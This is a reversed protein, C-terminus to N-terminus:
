TLNPGLWKEAEQESWGKRQAYDQMQDQQIQAIAFYRSDPHSFYWGSVSAGPWMAYSTTLSMDIAQEVNLMEWLTGKETHEPCAPYGPAPRIGQYKERILEDNSLNEDTAYGWIDKRVQLHLYEAFAEALRDAVAQIMIANYDDGNAKYQDALEREGIGGTVAFAGIWDKKGSEKPAIYDSLCYNFGKPKETQQRLNHLVHAVETRSEDSYVEIDDGISAAPFLACMGRAELLGEREVRDLLENADKFLRLAEEGVEEHDFIAPYKGMLSWTMFFPTWDIYQRLTSVDFDNFVHVGPKLPVPPTYSDWNIAVKNARAKELTVPKTRPRKRAHQDRVVDYDAQLKEVFAPKQTESLLASCVGVARSANNVYVVPHQYNQEIKVATHAKSTTAGGILLPLEFGQREMEKAVHVMEDLSPTILGSLGIIDVNEEKAVKLIKECPVMVGLDIIEYNNCQLVVGVINKGIDHVDGKVTALLIKGNTSGAQKLANIYPELHAVAQKMVRASKVVQPLFMKGEGFLDGVVNMGDMLPGEIVELPKSANLRAEETDEVIFETIGKVLAHELRKEVSWTRWELASADEEKGVGKDAYEAAIDLLRETSDDRRNLIVDEVADRLKEPVNDYIELQGANVIGMDMGNKFCHYLFVAHIAERVYNNGRFSFSVNSVGGSIMAYPLDRKIDAVAEIFDVAYNNHEDIGTAVAFINPDFIIDEAPFGVEDVLIRYANTCIEIKRQRTDAQGVEDFAMVIVAAGYRRILKAQEVFKEKGEKLSISNVIGKGQICKLGAEIVEWKSSDVMIPVKSIEPESACLNLFRVMCAEADLMGEDMNIDIIQAGNEVQERAVHLAEDYLEEKILRKFRASGTVNTREGVNVFLTDKAISLPELGSLRCSKPLEPLSRPKVGEVAQAMQRIHEPTTGCCGGVLNLFGAQAWEAIHEAMEKAELDYEGFANPLGANPHASVYCESIRSLEEVYQRLEDPGLACNLGFSIPEVHRLANYFAETTQGSLTRGSADTITGSIMVPLKYGLEEFVTDVAFACAKANLTDFITEILILDCGGKILARTSESYAEVLQDFSVNRFGPDNVDPSISCTRNTPGLVGAVYRPKHPTKATWEDAVERALKAAAFNIEDSIAQMDYDAMAITTANFTNTELIDAGAELYACHIEKILQPQTLVLLDNNGKLDSPWDAFREGRYDQEELKYGQIMTGMGGDILLIRQQLQAEIQSKVKRGM